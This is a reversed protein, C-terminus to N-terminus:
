PPFGTVSSIVAGSKVYQLDVDEGFELKRRLKEWLRREAVPGDPAKLRLNELLDFRYFDVVSRVVDAFALHTTTTVNYLAYCTTSGGVTVLLFLPLSISLTVLVVSWVLTTVLMLWALLVVADLQAKIDQLVGAYKSSSDLLIKQLRGWALDLSFGYRIQPYVALANNQNGLRTPAITIGYSRHIEAFLETARAENRRMAYHLLEVFEEAIEETHDPLTKEVSKQLGLAVIELSEYPFPDDQQRLGKLDQFTAVWPEHSDVIGCLSGHDAKMANARADRLNAEWSPCDRELHRLERRVERLATRLKTAQAVHKMTLKAALWHGLHKGEMLERLYSTSSSLLYALMLLVLTVGGGSRVAEIVTIPQQV